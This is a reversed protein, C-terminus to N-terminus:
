VTSSEYYGGREDTILKIVQGNKIDRKGGDQQLMLQLLERMFAGHTVVMVVDEELLNLYRLVCCARKRVNRRTEGKLIAFDYNNQKLLLMQDRYYRKVYEKKLGEIKGLYVEQLAQMKEFAVSTDSIRKYIITATHVARLLPSTIIRQPLLGHGVCWNYVDKAECIGQQSLDYDTSIGQYIGEVNGYSQGHRVLLVVM